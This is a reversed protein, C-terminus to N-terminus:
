FKYTLGGAITSEHLLRGEVNLLFSDLMEINVGIAIGIRKDGDLDYDLEYSVGETTYAIKDDTQTNFYDYIGAIYPTVEVSPSGLVAEFRRALYVSTQLESNEVTGSISNGKSAGFVSVVDVDANWRNYEIVVGATVDYWEEVECAAAFGVGWLLGYDTEIDASGGSTFTLEADEVKAMGLKTYFNCYETLGVSAKGYAQGYEMNFESITTSPSTLTGGAEIEKNFTYSGGASVAYELHGLPEVPYGIEAAHAPVAFTFVVAVVAVLFLLSSVKM